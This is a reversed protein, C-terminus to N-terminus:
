MVFSKIGDVLRPVNFNVLLGQRLGSLRLYTLVQTHHIPLVREIAKVEVLVENQVVFDVRYACPIALGEYILPLAVQREFTLGHKGLEYELCREYVREFLGPGLARHVAIASGIIERVVPSSILAVIPRTQLSRASHIAAGDRCIHDPNCIRGDTLCSPRSSFHLDHLFCSWSSFCCSQKMVEMGKVDKM